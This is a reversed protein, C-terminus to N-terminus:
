KTEEDESKAKRFLFRYCERCQILKNQKLSLLDQATLPYFCSSCTDQDVYSIPHTDQARIMNYKELWEQPIGEEQPRREHALEEVVKEVEALKAQHEQLTTELGQKQENIEGELQAFSKQKHEVKNWSSVLVSELEHQQLKLYDIEKKISKYEKDTEVQELQKSKVKEKEDLEKMDLEHRKVGQQAQELQEKNINLKDDLAKINNQIDAIAKQESKIATDTEFFKQDFKVLDVLSQLQKSNEAM